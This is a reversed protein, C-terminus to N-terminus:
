FDPEVGDQRVTYLMRLKENAVREDEPVMTALEVVRHGDRVTLEMLTTNKPHYVRNSAPNVSFLSVAGELPVLTGDSYRKRRPYARTGHTRYEKPLILTGDAYSTANGTGDGENMALTVLTAETNGVIVNNNARAFYPSEPTQLFSLAGEVRIGFDNRFRNVIDLESSTEDLRAIVGGLQELEAQTM